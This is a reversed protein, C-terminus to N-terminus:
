SRLVDGTSIKFGRLFEDVRLPKRGPCQLGTLLLSGEGCAVIVGEPVIDLVTGPVKGSSNFSCVQRRSYMSATRTMIRSSLATARSMSWLLQEQAKGTKAIRRLDFVLDLDDILKDPVPVSRYQPLKINGQRDHKRKKLSRFVIVKETLSIKEATLELAESPRCGTYHLVSCFVRNERSEEVASALFRHRESETLYLREGSGSFIRMESSIEAM